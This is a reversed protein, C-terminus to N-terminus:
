RVTPPSPCVAGSTSPESGRRGASSTASLSLLDVELASTDVPLRGVTQCADTHFLVGAQRCLRGAEAIPQMTGDRPERAPDVRAAHGTRPDRRRLRRSRGARLRRGPRPRDRVTPRSTHLVGGVAPHEVATTVVRDGIERIPRVGGWIALAVSETGGSTFVIEDAPRGVGRRDPGRTTSCGSPPSVTPMCASHTASRTSRASCRPVPRAPCRSPPPTTSYTESPV